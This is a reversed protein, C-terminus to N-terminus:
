WLPKKGAPKIGGKRTSSVAMNHKPDVRSTAKSYFKQDTVKMPDEMEPLITEGDQLPMENNDQEIVPTSAPEVTEKNEAIVLSKKTATEINRTKIAKSSTKKNISIVPTAMPKKAATRPSSPSKKAPSKKVPAKASVTKKSAAKKSTVKKTVAKKPVAKKAAAAKKAPVKAGKKKAQSLGIAIAQKKDTVKKGSGGSRLSGKEMRKMASEVSEKAAKSYKAMIIIKQTLFFLLLSFM